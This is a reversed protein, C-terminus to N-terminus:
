ENKGREFYKNVKIEIINSDVITNEAEKRAILQASQMNEADIINLTKYEIGLGRNYRVIAKWKKVEFLTKVYKITDEYTEFQKKEIKQFKSELIFKNKEFYVIIGKKAMEEQIMMHGM